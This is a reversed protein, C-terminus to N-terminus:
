AVFCNNRCRQSARPKVSQSNFDNRSSLSLTQAQDPAQQLAETTQAKWLRKLDPIAKIAAKRRQYTRM